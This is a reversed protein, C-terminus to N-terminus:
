VVFLYVLLLSDEIAHHRATHYLTAFKRLLATGGDEPDFLSGLGRSREEEENLQSKWRVQVLSCPTM